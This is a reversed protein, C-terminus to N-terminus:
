KDFAEGCKNCVRIKKGNALIEGKIRRPSNCKACFIMVNSSALPAEKDVIGGQPIKQTPKTHRKVINVGEVVVRNQKPVVELIKGKKGANKGTIVMVLDGKKVHSKSRTQGQKLNLKTKAL